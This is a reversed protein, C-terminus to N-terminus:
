KMATDCQLQVVRRLLRVFEEADAEGLQKLLAAFSDVTRQQHARCFAEGRPTLRAPVRRRDRPDEERLLFGKRALSGLVAAVRSSSMNLASCIDGPTLVRAERMFLRMVAAEGRMTESVHDCPPVFPMHELADFFERALSEYRDM